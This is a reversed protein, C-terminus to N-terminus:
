LRWEFHPFDVLEESLDGDHRTKGDGNWDGGWRFGEAVFFAAFEKWEQMTTDGRHFQRKSNKILALDVAKREIHKSMLANTIKVRAEDATINYLGAQQYAFQVHSVHARSRSFYAVQVLYERYSESIRWDWGAARAKDSAREYAERVEPLLDSVSNHIMNEGRM